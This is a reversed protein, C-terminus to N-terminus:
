VSRCDTSNSIKIVKRGLSSIAWGALTGAAGAASSALSAQSTANTPLPMGGINLPGNQDIATEPKSYHLHQIIYTAQTRSFCLHSVLTAAYEHLKKM